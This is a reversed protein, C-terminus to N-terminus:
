RAGQAAAPRLAKNGWGVFSVSVTDVSLLRPIAFLGFLRYIKVGRRMGDDQQVVTGATNNM